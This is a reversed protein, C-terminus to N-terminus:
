PIFINLTITEEASGLQNSVTCKIIKEGVCCESGTFRVQSGSENLAFIDGLDVEWMYSLNGGTANCTIVAPDEGGVRIEYRDSTLEVISPATISQGPDPDAEDKKCSLLAVSLFLICILFRSKM